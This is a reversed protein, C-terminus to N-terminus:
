QQALAAKKAALAKFDFDDDGEHERLYPREEYGKYKILAGILGGVIAPIVYGLDGVWGFILNWKGYDAGAVGVGFNNSYNNPGYMVGLINYFWNLSQSPAHGTYVDPISIVPGFAYFAYGLGYVLGWLGAMITAGRYVNDNKIWHSFLNLIILVVSIPATVLLFPITLDLLKQVGGTGTLILGIIFALVLCVVVLNTYKLKRGSISSFYESTLSVCGVATLLTAILVTLGFLFLGFRGVSHLMIYQLLWTQDIACGLSPDCYAVITPDTRYMYGLIALGVYIIFLCIAGFVGAQLIVKTQESSKTIGKGVLGAIIIVAIITGTAADFTQLGQQVGFSFLSPTGTPMEVPREAGSPVGKVGAAILGIVILIFVVSIKIPTMIKGVVDVVKTPRFAMLFVLAFFVVMFIVALASVQKPMVVGEEPFGKSLPLIFVEYSTLATRPLVVLISGVFTAICGLVIMFTRGPRYMTGIEVKPFKGSAALGMIGLVADFIIFAIFGIIWHSGGMFGLYPPFILNGAGFFTAFVMFGVAIITTRRSEMKTGSSNTSM